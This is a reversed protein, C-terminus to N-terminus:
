FAPRSISNINQIELSYLRGMCSEDIDKPKYISGVAETLHTMNTQQYLQHKYTNVRLPEIVRTIYEDENSRNGVITVSRNGFGVYRGAPANFNYADSRMFALFGANVAGPGTNYVIHFNGLDNDQMVREMVSLVSFYIMPHRPSAAMFWQSPCGLVEQVFFADDDAAITSANFRDPVPSSDMDAYIGGYEWLVLLRWIDIFAAGMGEPLCKMIKKLFPFEPWDQYLLRNVADDDHLFLFHDDLRWTDINDAFLKVNCRSSSSIHVIRPIKRGGIYALEPNILTDNVLVLSEPCQIARNRGTLEVLSPRSFPPPLLEIVPNHSVLIIKVLNQSTLLFLLTAVVSLKMSRGIKSDGHVRVFTPNTM